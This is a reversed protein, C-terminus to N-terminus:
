MPYDSCYIIMGKGGSNKVSKLFKMADEKYIYAATAPSSKKNNVEKKVKFLVLFADNKQKLNKM